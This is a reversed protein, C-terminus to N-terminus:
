KGAPPNQLAKPDVMIDEEKGDGDIDKKMKIYDPHFNYAVYKNSVYAGLTPLLIAGIVTADVGGIVFTFHPPWSLSAGNFILKFLVVGVAFTAFTLVPDPNGDRDKLWPMKM